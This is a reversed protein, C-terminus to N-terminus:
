VSFVALSEYERDKLAPIEGTTGAVVVAQTGGSIQRELLKEMRDYDIGEETFPTIMATCSGKFVPEKLKM